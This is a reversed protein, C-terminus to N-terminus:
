RVIDLTAATNGAPQLVHVPHVGPGPRPRITPQGRGRVDERLGRHRVPVRGHVRRIHGHTDQAQAPVIVCVRHWGRRPGPGPVHVRHRRGGPRPLRPIRGRLLLTARVRREDAAPVRVRVHDANTEMRHPAHVAVLVGDGYDDDDDVDDDYIETTCWRRRKRAGPRALQGSQGGRHRSGAGAAM